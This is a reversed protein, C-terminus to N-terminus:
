KRYTERYAGWMDKVWSPKQRGDVRMFRDMYDFLADHGWHTNIGMIHSALVWGGWHMANTDRYPADWNLGDYDKRNLHNLGWEPMGEHGSTGSEFEQGAIYEGSLYEDYNKRKGPNAHGYYEGGSAHEHLRYPQNEDDPNPIFIDYDQDKGDIWLQRQESISSQPSATVYFTQEDEAFSVYGPGGYGVMDVSVGGIELMSQALPSNLIRGAFLIPFKRGSGIQGNANWTKWEPSEEDHVGYNDIGIQILGILLKQKEKNNYNSSNLILAIQSVQKSIQSGDGPINKEPHMYSGSTDLAFDIWPREVMREFTEDQSADKTLGRSLDLINIGVLPISGLISYDIDSVNFKVQKSEGAYAPRFDGVNPVENMVTLIAVTELAMQKTSWNPQEINSISSLLSSNGNIKLPNNTSLDSASPRAKNFDVSYNKLRSDFGQFVHNGRGYNPNVDSSKPNIMSGNLTVGGVEISSPEIRIINISSNIEDTKVWFDGNAFKGYQYEKDFYWTIGFQTVHDTMLIEPAASTVLTSTSTSRSTTEVLAPEVNFYSYSSYGNGNSARVRYKYDVLPLVGNHDFSTIDRGLTAINEWIVADLSSDLIFQIENKANDTWSLTTETESVSEANLDSPAVPLPTIHPTRFNAILSRTNNMSLANNEVSGGTEIANYRIDPNSFYSIRKGGACANSMITQVGEGCEQHGYSYDYAGIIYNANSNEHSNGMIHGLEHALSYNSLCAYVSDDHLVIFASDEFSESPENMLYTIGCDSTDATLLVVVDGARNNRLTHIEDMNGDQPNKLDTLSTQTDGSEVYDTLFMLVVNLHIGVNSNKYAQNTMDVANMIKTRVGYHGRANKLAQLTYYVVIDIVVPDESNSNKLQIDDSSLISSISDTLLPITLANNRLSDVQYITHLLGVKPRIEYTKENIKVIGTMQEGYVTLFVESDLENEIYGIWTSVGNVRDIIRTRIATVRLDDFLNLVLKNSWLVDTYIDTVRNRGSIVKIPLESDKYQEYSVNSFVEPLYDELSGASAPSKEMQSNFESVNDPITSCSFIFFCSLIVILKIKKMNNVNQLTIFIYLLHKDFNIEHAIRLCKKLDLYMTAYKIIFGVTGSYLLKKYRPTPCLQVLVYLNQPALIPQWFSELM